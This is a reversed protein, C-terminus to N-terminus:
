KRTFKYREGGEEGDPYLFLYWPPNGELFGSGSILIFYYGQVPTNNVKEFKLNVKWTGYEGAITWNGSGDFKKGYKDSFFASPLSKGIFTGDNKFTFVAADQSEWTGTIDNKTPSTNMCGQFVIALVAFLIIKRIMEM